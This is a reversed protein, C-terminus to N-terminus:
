AEEYRVDLRDLYDELAALCRRLEGDDQRRAATELEAGLETLYEFGYAAGVGKMNHGRGWVAEYDGAALLEGITRVDARRNALYEDILEALEADVTVVIRGNPPADPVDADDPPGGSPQRDTRPGDQPTM